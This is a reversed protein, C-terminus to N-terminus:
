WLSYFQWMKFKENFKCYCDITNKNIFLSKLKLSDSLSGVYLIDNSNNIEYVDPLETKKINFINYNCYNKKVNGIKKIKEYPNNIIKTFNFNTFSILPNFNSFKYIYYTNNYEPMFVIGNSLNELKLLKDLSKISYYKCLYFNQKKNNFESYFDNIKFNLFKLKKKLPINNLNQGNLYYVNMIFFHNFDNLKGDFITGNFIFNNNDSYIINYVFIDKKEIFYKLDNKQKLLILFHEKKVAISIKKNDIFLFFIIFNSGRKQSTMLYKYKKLDSYKYNKEIIIYNFFNCNFTEFISSFIYLINKKSLINKQLIFSSNMIINIIFLKNFINWNKSFIILSM